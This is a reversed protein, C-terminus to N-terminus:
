SFPTLARFVKALREQLDDAILTRNQRPPLEAARGHIFVALAAADGTQYGQAIFGGLLGSLVDGAGASALGNNGSTNILTRGGPEAIVTGQGKLVTVAGVEEAVAAAQRTRPADILHTMGFGNLLTKMEGPHPTLVVDKAKKLDTKMEAVFHLADADILLPLDKRLVAQIVTATEEARGIGPGMVVSDAEEVAKMLSELSSSNFYGGDADPVSIFILAQPAATIFQRSTAPIAIRSLGCGSRLAATASLVPAGTYQRSGGIILTQGFVGKHADAARRKLLPKIDAAFLAELNDTESEAILDDPIGIDVRRIEGCHALGTRALLGRKPLAMTVTLDAQVAETAIEGTDGNLGSPIDIAIVPRGSENINKILADYPSRLPGSIGTGLLADVLISNDALAADPLQGNQVTVFRIREPLQDAFYRAEGQLERKEVVCAVTVDLETRAALLGALVLGDGGNNGKGALIIVHECHAPDMSNVFHTLANFIGTGARYMLTTGPTGRQITKRDLERMAKVSVIKM